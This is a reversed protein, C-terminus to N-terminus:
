AVWVEVASGQRTGTTYAGPVIHMQLINQLEPLKFFQDKPLKRGGGLARLLMDFAADNPALIQPSLCPVDPILTTSPNIKVLACGAGPICTPLLLLLLLLQLDFAM